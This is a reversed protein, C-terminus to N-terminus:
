WLSDMVTISVYEALSMLMSPSMCEYLEGGMRIEKLRNTYSARRLVFDYFMKWYDEHLEIVTLSELKPLLTGDVDTSRSVVLPDIM